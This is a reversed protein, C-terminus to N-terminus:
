RLIIRRFHPYCLLSFAFAARYRLPYRCGPQSLLCVERQDKGRSFKHLRSVLCASSSLSLQQHPKPCSLARRCWALITYAGIQIQITVADRVLREFPKLQTLQFSERVTRLLRSLLLGTRGSAVKVSRLMVCSITEVWGNNKFRVSSYKKTLELWAENMERSGNAIFDNDKKATSIQQQSAEDIPLVQGSSLVILDQPQIGAVLLIIKKEIPIDKGYISPPVPIDHPPEPGDGKGKPGPPEKPKEQTQPPEKPKDQAQINPAMLLNEEGQIGFPIPQWTAPQFGQRYPLLSDRGRPCAWQCDTLITLLLLFKFVRLHVRRPKLDEEQIQRLMLELVFNTENAFAL